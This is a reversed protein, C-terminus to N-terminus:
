RHKTEDEEIKDKKEIERTVSPDKLTMSFPAM